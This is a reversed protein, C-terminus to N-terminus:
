GAFREMVFSDPTGTIVRNTKGLSISSMSVTPADTQSLVAATMFTATLAIYATLAAFRISM